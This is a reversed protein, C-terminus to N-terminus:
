KSMSLLFMTCHRKIAVFDDQGAVNTSIGARHAVTFMPTSKLTIWQRLGLPIVSLVTRGNLEKSNCAGDDSLASSSVVLAYSVLITQTWHPREIVLARSVNYIRAVNIHENLKGGFTFNPVRQGKSTADGKM